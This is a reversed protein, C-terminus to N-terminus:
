RTPLFPSQSKRPSALVRSFKEDGNRTVALVGLKFTCDRRAPHRTLFPRFNDPHAALYRISRSLSRSRLHTGIGRTKMAVAMGGNRDGRYGDCTAWFCGSQAATLAALCVYASMHM